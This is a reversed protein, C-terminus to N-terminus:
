SQVGVKEAIAKKCAELTDALPTFRAEVADIAACKVDLRKQTNATIAADIQPALARLIEVHEPGCAHIQALGATAADLDSSLDPLEFHNVTKKSKRAM